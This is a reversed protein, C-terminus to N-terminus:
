ILRYFKIATQGMIADYETQSLKSIFDEVIGIVEGYEAALLCVPWDSGIMLRGADFHELCIELYPKFDEKKWDGWVAETVMGSLKLNVNSFQALKKIRVAWEDFSRERIAPKALHDIVFNMEPLDKIFEICEELQHEFILIDYSFHHNHLKRIGRVFRDNTMFGEPEAQIIHRFGKLKPYQSFYDLREDLDPSKLDVWGVVGKVFNHKDALNLLFHTENESQDAQVAICGDFGTKKLLPKLDIPMFNQKLVDMSDDIWSDRKPDYQWFHHHADIKMM